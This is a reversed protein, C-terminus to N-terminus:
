SSIAVSKVLGNEVKIILALGSDSVEKEYKLFEDRTFKEGPGTGGVAAFEADDALKFTHDQGELLTQNDYDSEDERYNFSGKVILKDEEINVEYSTGSDIDEIPNGENSALLTTVYIGDTEHMEVEENETMNQENLAKPDNSETSMENEMLSEDNVSEISSEDNSQVDETSVPEEVSTNSEETTKTSNNSCAAFATVLAFISLVKLVKKEKM